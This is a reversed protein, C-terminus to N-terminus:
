WVLKLAMQIQRPGLGSGYGSIVGFNSAGLQAGPRGWQPTNFANFMEARYQLNLRNEPGFFTNKFISLDTSYIGPVRVDPLTRAVNGVTYAAPQSFV